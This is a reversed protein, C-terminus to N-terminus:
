RLALEFPGTADDVVLELEAAFEGRDLQTPTGARLRYAGYPVERLRVAGSGGVFQRTVSRGLGDLLLFQAPRGSVDLLELATLADKSRRVVGRVDAVRTLRFDLEYEGAEFYALQTALPAYPRGNKGGPHVGFVYWGPALVPLEVVSVGEVPDCGFSWLGLEDRGGGIGSFHRPANHPWPSHGSLVQHTAARAHGLRQEDAPSLAGMLVILSSALEPDADTKVRVKVSGPDRLRLQLGSTGAEIDAFRQVASSFTYFREIEETVLVDYRGAMLGHVAFESEGLYHVRVHAPLFNDATARSGQAPVVYIRHGGMGGRRHKAPEGDRGLVGGSLSSTSELVLEVALPSTASSNALASAAIEARAVALSASPERPEGLYGLGRTARVSPDAGREDIAFVVLPGVLELLDFSARVAGGPAQFRAEGIWRNADNGARGADLVEVFVAGLPAEDTRRLALELELTSKWRAEVQVERGPAVRIAFGDGRADLLRDDKTRQEAVFTQKGHRVTVRLDVAACVSEFLAEGREDSTRALHGMARPAGWQEDSEPDREWPAREVLVEADSLPAGRGDLVKVRLAGDPAMVIKGAGWGGERRWQPAEYRVPTWGPAVVSFLGFNDLNAFRALGGDNTTQELTTANDQKLVRVLVAGLPTGADDEIRMEVDGHPVRRLELEVSRQTPSELNGDASGARHTDSAKVQAHVKLPREGPDAVRWEFRGDDDANVEAQAFTKNGRMGPGERFLRLSVAVGSAADAPSHLEPRRMDLVVGTVLLEGDVVERRQTRGAATPENAPEEGSADTPTAIVSLARAVEVGSDAPDSGRRSAFWLGASVIAVALLAVLGFTTGSVGVAVGSELGTLSALATCWTNREGHERDLRERLTALARRHRSRVTAEPLAAQDAFERASLGQFYLAFLTARYPEDLALVAAVVSRLTDSQEPALSSPPAGDAHAGESRAAARERAQRRSNSRSRNRVVNTLVTALWGRLNSSERPGNELARLWTEQEVDDAGAPDRILSRALSRVFEAHELLLAPELPPMTPKM